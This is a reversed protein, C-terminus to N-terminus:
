AAEESGEVEEAAASATSCEAVEGDKAAEAEGEQDPLGELYALRSQMEHMDFELMEKQLELKRQELELAGRKILQVRRESNVIMRLRVSNAYNASLLWCAFVCPAQTCCNTTNLPEYAGVWQVRSCYRCWAPVLLSHRRVLLQQSLRAIEEDLHQEEHQEMMELQQVVSINNAAAAEVIATAEREDREAAEEDSLEEGGAMKVVKSMISDGEASVGEDDGPQAESTGESATDRLAKVTGETAQEQDEPEMASRAILEQKLTELQSFM